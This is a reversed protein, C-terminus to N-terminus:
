SIIWTFRRDSGRLRSEEHRRDDLGVFAEGFQEASKRALILRVAERETRAVEIVVDVPDFM